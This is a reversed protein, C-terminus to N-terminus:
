HHQQARNHKETQRKNTCTDRYTKGKTEAQYKAIVLSLSLPISPDLSRSLSLSLSPSVVSVSLSLSVSGLLGGSQNSFM